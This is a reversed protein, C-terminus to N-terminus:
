ILEIEGIGRNRELEIARAVKMNGNPKKDNIIIREGRNLGMVLQDYIVGLKILQEETIKRMSEKRGTTLIIRHGDGEWENIKELTGPLLEPTNLIQTSLNGQHKILCGDIDLFITKKYEEM